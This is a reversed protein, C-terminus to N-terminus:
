AVVLPPDVRLRVLVLLVNHFRAEYVLELGAAFQSHVGEGWGPAGGGGSCGWAGQGAPAVPVEDLRRFRCLGDRREKM